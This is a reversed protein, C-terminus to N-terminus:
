NIEGTQSEGMEEGTESTKESYIMGGLFREADWLIRRIRFRGKLAVAM